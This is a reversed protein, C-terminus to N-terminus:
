STPYLASIEALADVLSERSDDDTKGLRVITLKQRPSVLVYQGLYGVAAFMSQPGQGSFLVDRDNGSPRNLWIQAGYDPARPSPNVMFSIWRRPILQAGKIAGGRRLFEGFRGWDRATAHILSGGIMTGAADYEAVMSHIGIPGFIRAKLFDDVAARRTDPDNSDTLVRAAIDALIVTTPTSYKFQRGPTAELPQAEAWAAMDDRGQLFMTQVTDSDYAPEGTETHRLGSRMQLLQRLTIEGRPDGSRQWNAIPPTEDMRLKGDAVLMGIMLATVTKAMSWSIFRTEESYADGYREGVIKGNYIVLAARTEGVDDRTFLADLKRALQVRPAGPQAVVADMTYESLPQQESPGASAGGCAALLLPAPLLALSAISPPLRMM